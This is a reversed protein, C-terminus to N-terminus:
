GEGRVQAAFYDELTRSGRAPAICDRQGVAAYFRLIHGMRPLVWTYPVAMARVLGAPVRMVWGRRKVAALALASIEGRTLVQPGGVQQEGFGEDDVADACVEALDVPHIPNTRVSPDGIVPVVRWRAMGLLAAFASFFGTPHVVAHPLEIARLHEVVLRHGRVYDLSALADGEAVGVYVFRGVGAERAADALARNAPTDVRTYTARGALPSPMVSAGLCSFVVDVGRMLPLLSGPQLADGVREEAVGPLGQVSGARRTLAVVRHGRGALAQAVHRGLSGSAGAVLVTSM